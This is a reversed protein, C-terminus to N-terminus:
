RETNLVDIFRVELKLCVYNSIRHLQRMISSIDDELQLCPDEDENATSVPCALHLVGSTVVRIKTFRPKAGAAGEGGEGGILTTTATQPLQLSERREQVKELISETARLNSVIYKVIGSDIFSMASMSFDFFLTLSVNYDCEKMKFSHQPGPLQLEGEKSTSAAPSAAARSILQKYRPNERPHRLMMGPSPPPRHQLMTSISSSSSQPPFLLSSLGASIEAKAQQQSAAERKSSSSSSSSHLTYQVGGRLTAAGARSSHLLGSAVRGGGGGGASGFFAHRPTKHQTGRQAKNTRLDELIKCEPLALFVACHNLLHCLVHETTHRSTGYPNDEDGDQIISIEQNCQLCPVTRMANNYSEKCVRAQKALIKSVAELSSLVRPYKYLKLAEEIDDITLIEISPPPSARPVGAPQQEEGSSSRHQQQQKLQQNIKLNLRKHQQKQEQEQQQQRHSLGGGGEDPRPSHIDSYNPKRMEVVRLRPSPEPGRTAENKVLTASIQREAHHPDSTAEARSEQREAPRESEAGDAPKNLRSPLSEEGPVPSQDAAFTGSVSSQSQALEGSTYSSSPHIFRQRKQPQAKEETHQDAGLGESAGSAGSDQHISRRRM